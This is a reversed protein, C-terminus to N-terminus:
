AGPAFTPGNETMPIPGISQEQTPTRTPPTSPTPKPNSTIPSTTPQSSRYGIPNQVSTQVTPNNNFVNGATWDRFTFTVTIKLLENQSGWNLNVENFSIPFAKWMVISQVIDGTSDYVNLVLDTVYDDKYATAYQPLRNFGPANDATVIGGFDFISNVWTYFYRYIDGDKDSIFSITTDTFMANFPMKQRPGVGYRNVDASELLVGPIKATEARFRILSEIDSSTTVSNPGSVTTNRMIKPSVFNLEFKNAHLVGRDGISQIFQSINYAM